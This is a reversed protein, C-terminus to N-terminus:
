LYDDISDEEVTNIEINDNVMNTVETIYQATAVEAFVRINKFTEDLNEGIFESPNNIVFSKLIKSFNHVSETTEAIIEENENLLTQVEESEMIQTLNSM